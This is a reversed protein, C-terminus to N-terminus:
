GKLSYVFSFIEAVITYLEPPIEENQKLRYLSAALKDNKYIPVNNKKALSVIYDGVAGLGKALIYPAENTQEDYKLAVAKNRMGAEM